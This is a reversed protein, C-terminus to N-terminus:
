ADSGFDVVVDLTPDLKNVLWSNIGSVDKVSAAWINTEVNDTEPVKVWVGSAMLIHQFSIILRWSASFSITKSDLCLGEDVTFDVLWVKRNPNDVGTTAKDESGGTAVGFVALGLGAAPNILGLALGPLARGTARFFRPFFGPEEPTGDVKPPDFGFSSNMRLRVLTLFAAWATRRPANMKVTYTAKLTCLWVTLGMGAKAPRVNYNGRALMCDPPLDMYPREQAQVDFTLTRKDMSIPFERRTIRFRSLDISGLIRKQLMGRFNDATYLPNRKDLGPGRTLPVELVGRVSITSFGDEEYAVVTEYALQLIGIASGDVEPVRATVKWQVKASKGCGLPQFEVLDPVPGWQVDLTAKRRSLRDGSVVGPPNVVLDLGRGQYVLTGGHQTLLDRLNRMTPDITNAGSPLTVYGDATLTYEVIKTIRKADDPMIKATLKTEYLPSFLCGNYSLIGADPLKSPGTTFNIDVPAPM